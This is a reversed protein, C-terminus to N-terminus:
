DLLYKLMRDPDNLFQRTLMFHETQRWDVRNIGDRDIQYVAAGPLASLIPSHTSIIFQAGNKVLRDITVMLRMIGTPSLAAEPEDLIYLGNPSFRTEVLTLFSEGHSMAHLSKEGYALFSPDSQLQEIFSAANYFSEARLFYGDKQRRVGKSVTLYQHLPSHSDNTAFNFNVTGGEPNFGRSVAIAEILTSKGAGNEGMFFTVPADFELGGIDVLSKVVPLGALWSNQPLDDNIKIQSVFLNSFM